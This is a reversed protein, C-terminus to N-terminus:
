SVWGNALRAEWHPHDVDKALQIMRRSDYPVHRFSSAWGGNKKEVLAYCAASTGTQVVQHVPNDDVYGPCGVSGPNLIIRGDPLNIRRPLHTHGCLLMTAEIGEAEMAIEGQPKLLVDGTPSVKEMWYTTDSSPTGHCAFIEDTLMLTAPLQRLWDLHHDELQDFAAGDISGMEERENEVLWRDHNGRISPMDHTILLDATERAAMPGSLHDGLNVVSQIDCSAIDELVATLADSNSHIDAIVAFRSSDFKKM